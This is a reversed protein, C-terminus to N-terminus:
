LVLWEETIARAAYQNGASMFLTRLALAAEKAFDEVEGDDSSDTETEKQVQESLKLVKEYAPVALHPSGLMHWMRAVNYEAEQLHVAKGSAVRLDYYRYLFSMGQAVAYQKNEASKHMSSTIYTTAISLNVVLNEPQMALVRFLYVLAIHSNGQRQAHIHAYATLLGADLDDTVNGRQEALDKLRRADKGWDMKRRMEPSTALYDREVIMSHLWHQTNRHYFYVDGHGLQGSAAILQPALTSRSLGPFDFQQLTEYLFKSDNFMHACCVCVALTADMLEPDHRFVNARMLVRHLLHYCEAQHVHKAYLLALNSLIRHWEHFSIDHFDGPSDQNIERIAEAEIGDTTAEHLRKKTREMESILSRGEINMGSRLGTFYKDRTRHPYFEKTGGFEKAMAGAHQMWQQTAEDDASAEISSWLHKVKLHSAQVRAKQEALQEASSEPAEYEDDSDDTDSRLVEDAEEERFVDRNDDTGTAYDGDQHQSPPRPRVPISVKSKGSAAGDSLLAPRRSKKTKTSNGSSKKKKKSHLGKPKLIRIKERRLLDRRGLKSIESAMSYAKANQATSEYLKVLALRADVHDDTAQIVALYCEEADEHRSLEGYCQGLSMWFEENVLEPFSKIPEYFNIASSFMGHKRLSEAVELFMDSFDEIEDAHQQLHELHKFAESHHIPGMQLRFLGLKVRLELPLGNGYKANDLSVHGQQVYPIEYRRKHTTDYERDDLTIDDWFTDDKRGLFWRAFRKLLPVAERARGGVMNLLDLYINLHDWQEESDGLSDEDAYLRFANEYAEIALQREYPSDRMDYLWAYQRVNELDTPEIKVIAKSEIRAERWDELEIHLKLKGKRAEYNNTDIKIAQTYCQIANQMDDYNSDDDELALYRDAVTIWVNPDRKTLAGQTLAYVADRKMGQSERIRAMLAHASYVEPNTLIAQFVHEIAEDLNGELHANNAESMLERFEKGADVHRTTQGKKRGRKSATPDRPLKPKKFIDAHDTGKLARKWGGRRKKEGRAPGQAPTQAPGQAPGQTSGRRSGRPRGSGRVRNPTGQIQTEAATNQQPHSQSANLRRSTLRDGDPLFHYGPLATESRQGTGVYANFINTTWPRPAPDPEVCTNNVHNTGGDRYLDLNPNRGINGLKFYDALTTYTTATTQIPPASGAATITVDGNNSSTPRSPFEFGNRSLSPYPSRYETSPDPYESEYGNQMVADEEM